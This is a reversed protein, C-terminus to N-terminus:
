KLGLRELLMAVTIQIQNKAVEKFQALGSDPVQPGTEMTAPIPWFNLSSATGLSKGTKTDFVEAELAAYGVANRISNFLSRQYIGIGNMYQNTGFAQDQYSGPEILVIFDAKKGEPLNPFDKSKRTIENLAFVQVYRETKQLVTVADQAINERIQWEHIPLSAYENNFVTTGIWMLKLDDGATSAIAVTKGSTQSQVAKPDVTACGSLILLLVILGSSFIKKM